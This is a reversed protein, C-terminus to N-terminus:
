QIFGIAKENKETATAIFKVFSYPIWISMEEKIRNDVQSPTFTLEVFQGLVQFNKCYLYKGIPGSQEYPKLENALIKWADDFLIVGYNNDTSM